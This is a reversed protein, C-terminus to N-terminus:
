AEFDAVSVKAPRESPVLGTRIYVDSLVIFHIAGLQTAVYTIDAVSLQNLRTATFNRQVLDPARRASTDARTTTTFARGRLIRM